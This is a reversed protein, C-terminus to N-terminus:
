RVGSVDGSESATATLSFEACCNALHADHKVRVHEAGGDYSIEASTEGESGDCETVTFGTVSIASLGGGGDDGSEEGGSADGGSEEGGSTDGGSEEGGSADGGTADGGDAVGTDDASSGTDPDPTGTDGSSSGSAGTSAQIWNPVERGGSTTTM